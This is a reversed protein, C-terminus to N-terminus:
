QPSCGFAVCASPGVHRAVSESDHDDVFRVVGRRIRVARDQIVKLRVQEAHGRRRIAAVPHRKALHEGRDRKVVVHATGDVIAPEARNTREQHLRLRVERTHAFKSAFKRNAVHLLNKRLLQVERLDGRRDHALAPLSWRDYEGSRDGMRVRETSHHVLLRPVRIKGGREIATTGVLHASRHEIPETTALDFTNTFQENNVSPKSTGCIAKTTM